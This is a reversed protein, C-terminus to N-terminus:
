PWHHMIVEYRARTRKKALTFMLCAAASRAQMNIQM